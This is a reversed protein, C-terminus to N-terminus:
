GDDTKHFAPSSLTGGPNCLLIAVGDPNTCVLDPRGDGNVDGVAITEPDTGAAYAV